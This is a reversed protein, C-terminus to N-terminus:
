GAFRDRGDGCSLLQGTLEVVLVDRGLVDDDAQRGTIGVDGFQQVVETRRRLGQALREDGHAAARPDGGLIGFRGVLSELLVRGVQGRGGALALEVRDDAAVGLDPADHLHEAPPGLVVRDEDTLGADALGGDDFTERLADDGAVHRLRQAVLGDDGEVHTRHDGTRLVAALELLPELGHEVLDLTRGSLDDGEDVLQM